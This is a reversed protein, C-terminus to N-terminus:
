RMRDECCGRKLYTGVNTESSLHPLPFKAKTGQGSSLSDPSLIGSRVGKPGDGALKGMPLAM